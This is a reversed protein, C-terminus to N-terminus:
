DCRLQTLSLIRTYMIVMNGYENDKSWIIQHGESYRHCLDCLAIFTMVKIHHSVLRFSLHNTCLLSVMPIILLIVSYARLTFGNFAETFSSQAGAFLYSANGGWLIWFNWLVFFTRWNTSPKMTLFSYMTNKTWWYSM